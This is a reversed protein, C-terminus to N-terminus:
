GRGITPCQSHAGARLKVATDAAAHYEPVREPEPENKPYWPMAYGDAVQTLGADTGGRTVVYALSRDYRDTRDAVADFQVTVPLGRPLIGGLHNTATQAGCEPEADKGYNMEPADIGLIRVTHEPVGDHEDNPDLSGAVPRVAVTDGDIVRMVETKVAAPEETGQSQSPASPGAPQSSSPAQDDPVGPVTPQGDDCGTLTGLCLLTAVLSGLVLRYANRKM